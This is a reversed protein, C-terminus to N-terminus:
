AIIINQPLFAAVNERCAKYFTRLISMEPTNLLLFTKLVFDEHIRILLSISAYKLKEFCRDKISLYESAKCIQNYLSIGALMRIDLQHKFLM